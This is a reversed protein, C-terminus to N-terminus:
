ERANRDTKNLLIDSLACSIGEIRPIEQFITHTNVDDIANSDLSFKWKM